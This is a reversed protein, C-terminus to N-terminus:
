RVARLRYFVCNGTVTCDLQNTQTATPPLNTFIATWPESTSNLHSIRELYQTAQVGGKWYLRVGNTDASIHTITLLSTTSHPDTDATHEAGDPMGDNDTDADTPDTAYTHVEYGDSLGDGDTDSNPHVFEYAGIDWLAIGDDNGDLPGPTGEMDHLPEGGRSVKDIAITSSATLHFDNGAKNVFNPDPDTPRYTTNTILSVFDDPTLNAETGNGLYNYRVICGTVDPTTAEPLTKSKATIGMNGLSYCNTNNAIVCHSVSGGSRHYFSVAGRGSAGPGGDEIRRNNAIVCYAIEANCERVYLGETDGKTTGSQGTGNYCATITSYSLRCGESQYIVGGAGTYATCNSVLLHSLSNSYGGSIIFGGGWWAQVYPYDSDGNILRLGDVRVNRCGTLKMVTGTNAADVVSPYLSPSCDSFDESYGGSIGISEKQDITLTEEYVGQAVHITDGFAAADIASQISSYDAPGDDNVTIVGADEGVEFTFFRPPPAATASNSFVGGVPLTVSNSAPAADRAGIFYDVTSGFPVGPIEFEFISGAPGDTDLVHTWSGGSVRYFVAPQQSGAALGSTDTIDVSALYPGTSHQATLPTHSIRPLDYDLGSAMSVARFANLRGFGMEDDWYGENQLTGYPYGGVPEATTKLITVVNSRSLTDNVSLILAAVGAAVPTAASTGNFRPTYDTADAGEAGTIDTTFIKVGPAVLDLAQDFNSGWHTEGDVSDPSKREDAPSSAGVTVVPEYTAPFDAIDSNDNGASVVVVCGKGGRGNAMADDLADQIASSVVGLSWSISLVSADHDTAWQIGDAAWAIETSLEDGFDVTVRVPMIRVGPAVGVGGLGNNAVAAIVGAIATGHYEGTSPTPTNDDDTADYWTNTSAIAASLDPHTVEVGSDLVAVIINTNGNTVVWASPADIDAGPVMGPVPDPLTQGTNELHWQVSYDPDATANRIRCVWNPEAYVTGPEGHIDATIELISAIRAEPFTLLYVNKRCVLPKCSSAGWRALLGKVQQGSLEQKTRIIISPSILLERDRVGFVPLEVGGKQKLQERLDAATLPALVYRGHVLTAASPLVVERTNAPMLFCTCDRRVDPFHPLRRSVGHLRESTLGSADQDPVLYEQPDAPVALPTQASPMSAVPHEVLQVTQAQSLAPPKGGHKRQSRVISMTLTATLSVVALLVLVRVVPNRHM